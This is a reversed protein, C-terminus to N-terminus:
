SHGIRVCICGDDIHARKRWSLAVLLDKLKHILKRGAARKNEDVIVIWFREVVLEFGFVRLLEAPGIDLAARRYPADLDRLEGFGGSCAESPRPRSDRRERRDPLRSSLAM